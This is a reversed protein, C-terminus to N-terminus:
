DSKNLLDFFNITVEHWDGVWQIFSGSEEVEEKTYGRDETFNYIRISKSGFQDFAIYDRFKFTKVGKMILKSKEVIHFQGDETKIIYDKGNIHRGILEANVYLDGSINYEFDHWQTSDADFELYNKIWEKNRSMM